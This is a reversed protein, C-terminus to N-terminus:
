HVEHSRAVDAAWDRTMAEVLAPDDVVVADEELRTLSLSDLNISGIVVVRDDIIMTKAHMMSPQYEYIRIGAAVLPPYGHRQGLKSATVDNKDGPAEPGAGASPDRVSM